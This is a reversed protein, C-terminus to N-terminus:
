CADTHAVQLGTITSFYSQTPWTHETVAIAVGVTGETGVVGEAGTKGRQQLM